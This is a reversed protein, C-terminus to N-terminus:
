AETGLHADLLSRYLTDLDSVLRELSFSERVHARAAQGMRERLPADTVLRTVSQTLGEDDDRDVLLGTQGHRVVSAVGGVYTSITALGAAGAEILSVPTGENDSTLMVVDSAACVSPIDRRFGTWALRAGLARAEPSTRLAKNLEGDGVVLFHVNDLEGVSLAVRLFRDVRKIPVLRAILTVLTADPPIALEGRIAERAKRSNDLDSAFRDLEFGLPIVEFGSRDAVGLNVLEDRVEESVAVLKDTFRALFREIIRYAASVRPSFYGSLSHGHFTHVLVPRSRRRPCAILAALRGLTGAKAAHTHIIHPRESRVIRVLELLARLDHVGPHRRLTPVLKPSVGLDSALDDLNGEREEEAGRVLHTVYGHAELRKTLSIAQIAPGGVNLRAIVRLIRVPETRTRVGSVGSRRATPRLLRVVPRAVLVTFTQAGRLLAIATASAGVAPDSRLQERIRAANGLLVGTPPSEEGGPSDPRLRYMLVPREDFVIPGRFAVAVGLAWDEGNSADPYGGCDRVAATRLLACGQVSTLSWVANMWAFARPARALFRSIARPMRHVTGDPEVIRGVFAKADPRRSLGELLHSLGGPLLEDDADLFMVYESSVRSLALNRAAGRSLRTDSRVLECGDLPVIPPDSANDVLVVRPDADTSRVSRVADPLDQEYSGWVPIVVTM